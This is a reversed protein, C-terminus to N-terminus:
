RREYKQLSSQKLQDLEVALRPFHEETFKLVAKRQPEPMEDWRPGRPPPPPGEPGFGPLRFGPAGGPGPRGPGEPRPGGPGMRRAWEAGAPPREEGPPPDSPPEQAFSMGGFVLVVICFTVRRINM